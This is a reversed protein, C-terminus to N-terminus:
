PTVGGCRWRGGVLPAKKQTALKGGVAGCRGPCDCTGGWLAAGGSRLFFKPPYYMYICVYM